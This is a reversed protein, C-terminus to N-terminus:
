REGDSKLLKALHRQEEITLPPVEGLDRQRKRVYAVAGVLGILFVIGPSLWLLYTAPEVPPKLLVFQGYREVIYQVVQADSDGAMLRQRVLVRLDHALDANSDDISQNQCVLCRLGQGIARARAELAPDALMEQPTVAHALGLAMWLVAIMALITRMM